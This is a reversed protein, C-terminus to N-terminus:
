ARDWKQITPVAPVPRVPSVLRRRLDCFRSHDGALEGWMLVRILHGLFDGILIATDSTEEEYCNAFATKGHREANMEARATWRPGRHEVGVYM